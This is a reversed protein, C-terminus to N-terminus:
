RTCEDIRGQEILERIELAIRRGMWMNEGFQLYSYPSSPIWVNTGAVIRGSFEFSYINQERDIITEICFPGPLTQGTLRKFAEIFSVGMDYYQALTSERLVLPLNGIVVFSPTSDFRLNADADTEYRIDAGFVEIRDRAISNFYTVFVKTGVIFEQFTYKVGPESKESVEERNRAIFYGTGGSAGDTKAIVPADIEAVDTFERPVRFGAERMLRAKLDRNEEWRLLEKNGFIRTTSKLIKESGIYAVFSGHPILLVDDQPRDLVESFSQVEVISDGLGFSRYFPVRRAECYLLTEFGEARAGAMINLASHSAITGIKM